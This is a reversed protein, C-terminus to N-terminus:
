AARGGPAESGLAAAAAALSRARQAAEALAYSSAPKGGYRVAETGELLERALAELHGARPHNALGLLWAAEDEGARPTGLARDVAARTQFVLEFLAARAEEAPLGHATATALRAAANELRDRPGPERVPSPQKRRRLTIWAAVLAVAFAGAGFALAYLAPRSSHDATQAEPAHPRPAPGERTGDPGLPSHLLAAAPASAGRALEAGRRDRAVLPVAPLLREEGAVFIGTEDVEGDPRLAAVRWTFATVLGGEAHVDTRPARADFLLWASELEFPTEPAAVHSGEPHRVLLTAEFPAGVAVPEIPLM